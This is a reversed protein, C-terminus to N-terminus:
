GAITGQYLEPSLEDMSSKGAKKERKGRELRNPVCGLKELSVPSGKEYRVPTSSVRSPWIVTCAFSKSCSLIREKHKAALPVPLIRVQM